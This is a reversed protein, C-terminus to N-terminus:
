MTPAMDWAQISVVETDGGRAFVSVGLSDGRSPYIRQTICQRENAFVELVSRDLYIRLTLTEGAALEFPAQQAQVMRQEEPLRDLAQLNRYYPYRIEENLTSRSVDISLTGAKPTCVVRTGEAGDPSRRVEVGFEQASGPAMEVALELCDGHIDDFPQELGARLRLPGHSRLNRRLIGLEPIPEIRLLGDEALSLIRPLTMVGSWGSAREQDAGRLERIWDMYVRRGQGDLLTIGGGLHGGPWSMRAHTEPYFREGQYRGVYYQTGQLHSCFLLMHKNGLPFFDPVACDEDAETWRRDSRYFPHLYQWHIMDPSRFLYATDGGEPDRSGCLAYWSAGHKWACPDYVRYRGYEPGGPQPARIVPNAPYRTWHVLDDDDSTAICTGEPVGHYILTPVGNVVVAGGSFCGDRDAGGPEPALALPHHVWHVLDASSAHGWQIRKWYAADANHQYFIHYRGKWFLPGNIDNMWGAPPMFHYRPRQPDQWLGERLERASCILSETREIEEAQPMQM